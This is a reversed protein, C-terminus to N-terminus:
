RGVPSLTVRSFLLLVSVNAPEPLDDLVAGAYSFAGSNVTNTSGSLDVQSSGGLFDVTSSSVTISDAVGGTGGVGITSGAGGTAIDGGGDLNAQSGAALAATLSSGNIVDAIGGTGSVNVTDGSMGYVTVGGGVASVGIGTTELNLTGDPLTAIDGKAYIDLTGGTVGSADGVTNSAGHLAELTGSSGLLLTGNTLDVTGNPDTVTLQDGGHSGANVLTGDGAVTESLSNAGVTVTGGTVGSANDFTLGTTDTTVNATGAGLTVAGGTVGSADNVTLGTATDTLATSNQALSVAYAGGSFSNAGGEDTVTDGTTGSVANGGGDVTVTANALNGITNNSGTVVTGTSGADDTINSGSTNFTDLYCDNVITAGSGLTASNNSSGSTVNLSDGTSSAGNVANGAGTLNVQINNGLFNVTSSSLNISTSSGSNVNLIGGAVGNADMVNNSLGSLNISESSGLFQVTAGSGTATLSNLSGTGNLGGFTEMQSTLGPSLYTIFNENSGGGTLNNVVASSSAPAGFVIIQSVTGPAQGTPISANVGGASNILLNISLQGLAVVAGNTTVCATALSPDIQTIAPVAASWTSPSAAVALAGGALGADITLCDRSNPTINLNEDNIYNPDNLSTDAFITGGWIADTFNSGPYLLNANNVITGGDLTTIAKPSFNFQASADDTFTFNADVIRQFNAVAVDNSLSQVDSNSLAHGEYSSATELYNWLFTGPANPEYLQTDVLGAQSWWNLTGSNFGKGQIDNYVDNYANLYNINNAGPGQSLATNIANQTTASLVTSAM